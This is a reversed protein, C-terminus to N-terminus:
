KLKSRVDPIVEDELLEAVMNDAVILTQQQFRMLAPYMTHEWRLIALRTRVFAQIRTAAMGMKEQLTQKSTKKKPIIKTTKCKTPRMEETKQNALNALNAQNALNAVVIKATADSAEDKQISKTTTTKPTTRRNLIMTVDVEEKEVIGIEIIEIIEETDEEVVAENINEETAVVAEGEVALLATTTPTTPTTRSRQITPTMPVKPIILPTTPIITVVVIKVKAVVEKTEVEAVEEKRGGEEVVEEAVAVKRRTWRNTKKTAMIAMNVMSKKNKM